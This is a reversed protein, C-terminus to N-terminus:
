VNPFYSSLNWDFHYNCALWLGCHNRDVGSSLSAVQLLVFPFCVVKLYFIEEKLLVPDEIFSLGMWSQKKEGPQRFSQM